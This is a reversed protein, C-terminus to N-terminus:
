QLAALVAEREPARGISRLRETGKGDLVLFTPVMEIGYRRRLEAGAESRVDVRVLWVQGSLSQELGDVVPKAM